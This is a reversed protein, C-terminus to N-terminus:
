PNSLTWKEKYGIAEFEYKNYFSIYGGICYEAGFSVTKKMAETLAITALGLKRYEPVTALPELYAYKNKEDIWM